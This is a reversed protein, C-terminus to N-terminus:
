AVKRMKEPAAKEETYRSGVRYQYVMRGGLYGSYALVFVEILNFIFVGTGVQVATTSRAILQIVYGIVLLLNLILHTTAIRKPETARPISTFEALGTIATPLAMIVGLLICYYSCRVFFNGMVLNSQTFSIVDFVLSAAWLGIPFHVLVPHLPHAMFRGQLFSKTNM